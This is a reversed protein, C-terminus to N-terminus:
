RDYMYLHFNNDNMMRRDSDDGGGEANNQVFCKQLYALSYKRYIASLIKDATYHNLYHNAWAIRASARRDGLRNAIVYFGYALQLPEVVDDQYNFEAGYLLQQYKGSVPKGYAIQEGTEFATTHFICADDKTYYKSGDANALFPFTLAFLFTLSRRMGM